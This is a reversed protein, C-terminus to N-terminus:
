KEEMITYIYESVAKEKAKKMFEDVRKRGEEKAKDREGRVKDLIDQAEKPIDVDTNM